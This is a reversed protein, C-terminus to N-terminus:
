AGAVEYRVGVCPDLSGVIWRAGADLGGDDALGAAGRAFAGEPHFNWETPAVIRYDALCGDAVRTRHVLLGRSTEAWGMGFDGRRASGHRAGGGTRLDELAAATELLRALVRAGVGQGFTGVADVMLPHGAMRALPGTECPRGQWHPADDFGPESELSAAIGGVMAADAVGLLATDSTGLRACRELVALALAAPATGAGRVWNVFAPISDLSLFDAPSVGYVVGQAWDHARRAEESLSAGPAAALLPALLARGRAYAKIDPELAALRPWDALLRGLHEQAVEAALRTERARRVAEGAERGLAAEVAAAAAIAQARGCLAFLSGALPEAEGASRGDFM